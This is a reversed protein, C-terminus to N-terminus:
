SFPSGIVNGSIIEERFLKHTKRLKEDLGRFYFLVLVTRNEAPWLKDAWLKRGVDDSERERV